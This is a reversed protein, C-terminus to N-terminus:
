YFYYFIFPRYDHDRGVKRLVDDRFAGVTAARSLELFCSLTWMSTTILADVTSLVVVRIACALPGRAYM